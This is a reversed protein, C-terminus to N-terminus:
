GLGRIVFFAAAAVVVLIKSLAAMQLTIGLIPAHMEPHQRYINDLFGPKISRAFNVEVKHAKFALYLTLNSLFALGVAAGIVIQLLKQIDM